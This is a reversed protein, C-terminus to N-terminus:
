KIIITWKEELSIIKHIDLVMSTYLIALRATGYPCESWFTQQQHYMLAMRCVLVVNCTIYVIECKSAWVVIINNLLDTQIHMVQSINIKTNHLL